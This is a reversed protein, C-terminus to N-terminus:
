HEEKIDRSEEDGLNSSSTFELELTKKAVERDLEDILLDDKRLNSQAMDNEAALEDELDKFGLVDGNSDMNEMPSSSYDKIVKARNKPIYRHCYPDEHIRLLIYTLNFKGSLNAHNMNAGDRLIQFGCSSNKMTELKNWRHKMSFTIHIQSQKTCPGYGNIMASALTTLDRPENSLAELYDNTLSQM